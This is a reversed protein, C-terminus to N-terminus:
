DCSVIHISHLYYMEKTIQDIINILFIYSAKKEGKLM